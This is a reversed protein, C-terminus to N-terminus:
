QRVQPETRSSWGGEDDVTSSNDRRRARKTAPNSSRVAPGQRAKPGAAPRDPTVRPTPNTMQMMERLIGPLGFSVPNVIVQPRAMPGQIAFTMGLVGEGRPGALLQGLIPFQGIASNLGQLPVYTGGLDLSSARYDAKGKLVVGLVPGRLDADEIVFQGHGVSFPARMSNFPLVPRQMLKQGRRAPPADETAAPEYAVPDGLINFQRVQLLGTKEADGRGDLNVDLRMSGGQMSPYFGVLRFVQGADNSRAILRRPGRGSETQVDVDLTAGAVRDQGAIAAEGVVAGSAKLGTIRGARKSMRMKLSRLALDHFGLVNDIEADIELGARGAGPPLPKDRIQGVSFLSRFFDRGDFTQGKVKVAWVNGNRLQGDAQLRSIVNLSMNPFTFSVIRSKKDLSMSGNLAIDQGSLRFNRLETLGQGGDEIDFTLIASRGAPKKWALSELVLEAATLDARVEIKPESSGVPSVKLEVPVDGQVIDNVDLKLQTRDAADLNARLLLPPQDAESAAFIRGFTIKAAVGSILLEGNADMAQDNLDFAISAGHVDHSGLVNQAKGETIRGRGRIKVDDASLAKGLPVSINLTTDLKGDIEQGPLKIPRGSRSRAPLLDIAAQVPGQARLTLEGRATPSSVNDALLRVGKLPLRRNSGTLLVADPAAIEMQDGELRFLAKSATVTERGIRPKIRVDEGVLSVSVRTAGDSGRGKRQEVLFRGAALRGAEVHRASWDRADSAILPPWIRMLADARMPSFTGKVELREGTGRAPITGTMSVEGDDVKLKAEDLRLATGAADVRGRLRLVQLPKAALGLSDDAISGELGSIEFGWDQGAAKPVDITGGLTLWSRSSAIRSPALVIRSADSRYHLKLTGSEIGLKGGGPWEARIAGRRGEFAFQATLLEGAPSLALDAAGDVPLDLLALPAFLPLTDAISRPVLNKFRVDLGIAGAHQNERVSFTLQSRGAATALLMNGGVVNGQRRHNFGFDGDPIRWIAQQGATDFILTANRLGVQKLFSAATADDHAQTALRAIAKGMDIARGDSAADYAAGAAAVAPTATTAPSQVARADASTQPRAFSLSLGNERSYFLLLRPEILVVREPAIKGVWLANTSLTVAALPALAVPAKDHDSLQVDRLRFELTHADTLVVAADGVAVGFGGLDAEIAKAIPEALSKLSIPGNLLRVYIVGCAIAALLLM